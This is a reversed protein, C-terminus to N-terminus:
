SIVSIALTVYIKNSSMFFNHRISEINVGISKGNVFHIDLYKFSSNCTINDNDLKLEDVDANYRPGFYVCSM